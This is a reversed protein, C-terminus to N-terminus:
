RRNSIERLLRKGRSQMAATGDKMYFHIQALLEEKIWPFFPIMYSLIEMCNVRVAIPTRPAILWEFVTEVVKEQRMVTLDNFAYKRMEKAKPQTFGILIKTFHRQCSDYQQESLRSIFDSFIPLFREPYRHEVFELIWAARFAITKERHYCFDLLQLLSFDTSVAIEALNVAKVKNLTKSIEALLEEKTM